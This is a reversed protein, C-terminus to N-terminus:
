INKWHRACSLTILSLHDGWKPEPEPKEMNAPRQGCWSRATETCIRAGDQGRRSDLHERWMALRTLQPNTQLAASSALFRKRSKLRLPASEHDHFLIGPIKVECRKRQAKEDTSSTSCKPTFHGRSHPSQRRLRHHNTRGRTSRCGTTRHPGFTGLRSM